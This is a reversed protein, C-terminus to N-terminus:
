STLLCRALRASTAPELDGPIHRGGALYAVPLARRWLLALWAAGPAADCKTLISTRPAVAAFARLAAAAATAGAAASVVLVRSAAPGAEAALRALEGLEDNQGPGAGPTDVLVRDVDAAAQLARALAGPEAARVVPIGLVRGYASLEAAGGLRFGDAHVLLVRRGARRERAALKALTTTKGDGPPGVLLCVRAPDQMGCMPALVAAVAEELSGAGALRGSAADLLAAAIEADVGGRALARALPATAPDGGATPTPPTGAPGAVLTRVASLLARVERTLEEAAPVAHVEDDDVAATIAVGGGAAQTELLVAEPGLTAKVQRLAEAM